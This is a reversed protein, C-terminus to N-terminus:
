EGGIYVCGLWGFGRTRNENATPVQNAANFQINWGNGDAQGGLGGGVMRFAGTYASQSSNDAVFNGTINRIADGHWEGVGPLYPSGADRGYDGRTDPLKIIKTVADMGFFPVGGVGGAQKSLENWRTISICKWKWYPNQLTVWLDPYTTDARSIEAGNRVAWGVPPVKEYFTRFETLYGPQVLTIVGGPDVELGGGGGSALRLWYAAGDGQVPNRAGVGAINKGSPKLAIYLQNDEGFVFAPLYYTADGSWKFSGLVAQMLGEEVKDLDGDDKVGPTYRNAIFQAVGAAMHAAQRNARNQVERLAIGPIHGRKRLPHTKYEDLPLLDGAGELGEPAFPLIENVANNNLPM